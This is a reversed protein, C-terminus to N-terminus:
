ALYSWGKLIQSHLQPSGFYTNSPENWKLSLSLVELRKGHAQLDAASADTRGSYKLDTFSGDTRMRALYWATGPHLAPAKEMIETVMNDYLVSATPTTRAELQELSLRRPKQASRCLRSTLPM